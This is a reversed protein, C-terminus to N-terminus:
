KGKKLASRLGDELSQCVNKAAQLTKCEMKKLKERNAIETDSGSTDFVGDERVLITWHFCNGQDHVVSAAQWSGPDDYHWELPGSKKKKAM